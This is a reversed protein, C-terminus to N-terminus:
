EFRRDISESLFCAMKDNSIFLLYGLSCEVMSLTPHPFSIASLDQKTYSAVNKAFAFIQFALSCLNGHISAIRKM